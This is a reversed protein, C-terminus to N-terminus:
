KGENYEGRRCAPINKWSKKFRATASSVINTKHFSPNINVVDIGFPELEPRLCGVFGEMAYKSAHYMSAGVTGTVLGAMSVVNIVRPKVLKMSSLRKNAQAQRKLLPLFRRIVLLSGYFNVDMDTQIKEISEYWDFLSSEGKGANNIVAHLCRTSSSQESSIWKAVTDAAQSIEREDTVDMQM